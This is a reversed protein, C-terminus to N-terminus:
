QFMTSIKISLPGESLNFKFLGVAPVEELDLIDKHGVSTIILKDVGINWLLSVRGIPDRGVWLTQQEYDYYIISYPGQVSTM